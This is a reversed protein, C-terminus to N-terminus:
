WQSRERPRVPYPVPAPKLGHRQVFIERQEVAIGKHDLVYGKLWVWGYYTTREDVKTVRFILYRLGAFQVSAEDDILLVDGPKPSIIERGPQGSPRNASAPIM